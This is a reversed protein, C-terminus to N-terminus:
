APDRVQVTFTAVLDTGASNTTTAVCRVSVNLGESSSGGSLKITAIPTALAATGATLGTGVTWAVSSVTDSGILCDTFDVAFIEAASKHLRFVRHGGGGPTAKVTYADLAAM